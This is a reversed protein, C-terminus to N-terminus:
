DAISIGMTEKEVEGTTMLLKKPKIKRM